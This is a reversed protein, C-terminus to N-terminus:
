TDLLHMFKRNCRFLSMLATFPASNGLIINALPIVAIINKARTEADGDDEGIKENCCCCASAVDDNDEEDDLDPSTLIGGANM